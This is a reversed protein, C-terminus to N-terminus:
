RPWCTAHTPRCEIPLLHAQRLDDAKIHAARARVNGEDVVAYRMEGRFFKLGAPLDRHGHDVHLSQSRTTTADGLDIGSTHQMYAWLTSPSIGPWGAIAFAARVGRDRVGIQHESEQVRVIEQRPFGLEVPVQSLLGQVLVNGGGQIEGGHLCGIAHMLHHRGRHSLADAEQGHFAPDIGAVKSEEGKPTGRAQVDASHRSMQLDVGDQDRGCGWHQGGVAHEVGIQLIGERPGVSRTEVMNIQRCHACERSCEFGLPTGPQM